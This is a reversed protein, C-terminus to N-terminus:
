TKLQRAAPKHAPTAVEATTDLLEALFQLADTVTFVGVVVKDELVIASGLKRLAMKTVARDVSTRARVSFVDTSMAESVCVEDLDVGGLSEILYLDRQSVVGVLQGGHLVPLHRIDHASMIEHAARLTLDREITHPCPTMVDRIIPKHM